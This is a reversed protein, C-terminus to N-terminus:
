RALRVDGTAADPPAPEDARACRALSLGFACPDLARVRYVTVRRDPLDVRWKVEGTDPDVRVVGSVADPDVGGCNACHSRAILWDGGDLRRVGGMAPEYWGPETWQRTVEAVRAGDEDPARPLRYEVARSYPRATKGNDLLLVLRGAFSPDHQGIFGEGDPPRIPDVLGAESGFRDRIEGSAAGPGIGILTDLNRLSVWIEGDDDVTLGNAHFPDLADIPAGDDVLAGAAVADVSSWTWTTEGTALAIREVAFETRVIDEFPADAWTLVLVSDKDLAAAHSAAGTIPDTRLLEEGVADVLTPPHSLGGGILLAPGAPEAFVGPSTGFAAEDGPDRGLELTMRPSGGPDLVWLRESPAGLTWTVFVTWVAAQSGLYRADVAFTPPAPDLPITVPVFGQADGATAVCGYSTDPRFGTVVVAGARGRADMGAALVDTPDDAATCRVTAPLASGVVFQRALPNPGADDVDISLTGGSPVCAAGVLAAAWVVPQVRVM